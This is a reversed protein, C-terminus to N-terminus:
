KSHKHRQQLTRVEVGLLGRTAHASGGAAGCGGGQPARSSAASRPWPGEACDHHPKHGPCKM